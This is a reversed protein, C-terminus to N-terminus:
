QGCTPSIRYAEYKDTEANQVIATATASDADPWLASISNEFEVPNSVAIPERDAVEFAALAEQAGRSKETALIQWGSGCGSHLSVIDDGWGLKEVQETMGDLWHVQGDVAAFAWLTYRDRPLAAASYFPLTSTKKQIGPSLVGTFFNRTPAFFASLALPDYSLPWPDDSERCSIALPAVAVSRCQVGPLYADFLHDKRLLLRGRLDRPWPRSHTIPVRGEPLWHGSQLVHLSISEAELVIMQAQNGATLAVDLIRNDGTWILAKHLILEPAPHEPATTEPRPTTVMVVSPESNGQRIEAVWVYEQLNASLTIRITAAAQESAVSHLGFLALEDLLGQRIEEVEGNRLPSSNSIDVAMAGPGTVAAIKRALQIESPQWPSALVPLALFLVSVLIAGCGSRSLPFMSPIRANYVPNYSVSLM